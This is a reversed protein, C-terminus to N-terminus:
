TVRMAELAQRVREAAIERRLRAQRRRIAEAMGVIAFAWGAGWEAGAAFDYAPEQDLGLGYSAERAVDWLPTRM